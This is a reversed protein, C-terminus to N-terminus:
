GIRYRSGVVTIAIDDDHDDGAMAGLETMRTSSRAWVCCVFLSDGLSGLAYSSWDM